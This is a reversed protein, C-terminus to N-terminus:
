AADDPGMESGDDTVPATLEPEVPEVVPAKLMTCKKVHKDFWAKDTYKTTFCSPCILSEKKEVTEEEVEPQTDVVKEKVEPKGDIVKLFGYPNHKLINDLATKSVFATDGPKGFELRVLEHSFKNEYVFNKKKGVYEVKVLKM